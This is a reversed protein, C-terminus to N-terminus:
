PIVSDGNLFLHDEGNKVMKMVMGSVPSKGLNMGNYQERKGKLGDLHVWSVGVHFKGPSPRYIDTNEKTGLDWTMPNGWLKM